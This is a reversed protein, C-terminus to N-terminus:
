EKINKILSKGRMVTDEASMRIGVYSIAAIRGNKVDEQVKAIKQKMTSETLGFNTDNPPVVTMGLLKEVANAKIPNQIAASCISALGSNSFATVDETFNSKWKVAKINRKGSEGLVNVLMAVITRKNSIVDYLAKKLQLVNDDAIEESVLVLDFTVAEKVHGSSDPSPRTMQQIRSLAESLSSCLFVDCGVKRLIKEAPMQQRFTPEILLVLPKHSTAVKVKRGGIPGAYVLSRGHFMLFTPVSKIGLDTVLSNSESIDIKILNPPTSILSEPVKSSSAQEPSEKIKHLEMNVLESVRLWQQGKPDGGRLVIAVTLPSSSSVSDPLGLKLDSWHNNLLPLGQTEIMGTPNNASVEDKNVVIMSSYRGSNSLVSTRPLPPNEERLASRVEVSGKWNGKADM